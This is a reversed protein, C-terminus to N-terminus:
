KSKEYDEKVADLRAIYTKYTGGNGCGVCPDINTQFVSNYLSVIYEQEKADISLKEEKRFDQYSSLQEENMTGKKLMVYPFPRNLWEKREKCGCDDGLIAKAVKDIGTKKLVKEVKDGLGEPLVVESETEIDVLKKNFDEKSSTTNPRKSVTKRKAM